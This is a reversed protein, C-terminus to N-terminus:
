LRLRLVKPKKPLAAPPEQFFSDSKALESLHTAVAAARLLQQGHMMTEARGFAGGDIHEVRELICEGVCKARKVRRLLLGLRSRARRCRWRLDVQRSELVFAFGM